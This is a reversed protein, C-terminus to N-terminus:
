QGPVGGSRQIAQEMTNCTLVGFAIPVKYDLSLRGLDTSVTTNIHQDHTTEGRIVCGLTLVADYRSAELAMQVAGPIEWAGPVWLVCIQNAPVLNRTLTQVAGDLLKGTISFHYKSVVIVFRDSAVSGTTGKFEQIM